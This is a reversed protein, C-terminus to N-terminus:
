YQSLINLLIAWDDDSISAIMISRHHCLMKELINTVVNFCRLHTRSEFKFCKDHWKSQQTLNLLSWVTQLTIIVYYRLLPHSYNINSPNWIRVIFKWTVYLLFRGNSIMHYDSNCPFRYICSTIISERNRSFTLNRKFGMSRQLEVFKVKIHGFNAKYIRSNRSNTM